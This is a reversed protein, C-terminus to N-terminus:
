FPAEDDGAPPASVTACLAEYRDIPIEASSALGDLALLGRLQETTWGHQKAIAFLRKQQPETILGSGRPTRPTPNVPRTSRPAEERPLEEAPTGRYGALVVVWALVNRLAKACARTQAMSALQFLPKDKWTPEDTVCYAEARSIERGDAAIAIAVAKFGRANGLEVPDVSVAKATVGYFRGVTQWDEFELYQEGKFMVPKNKRTIVDQLAAAARQAAALTETPVERLTLSTQGAPLRDSPLVVEGTSQDITILDTQPM